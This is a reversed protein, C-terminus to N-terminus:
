PEGDGPPGAPGVVDFPTSVGEGGLPRGEDDPDGLLVRENAELGSEVVVHNDNSPGLLVERPDYRGGRVAYVYHKGGREFVAELPVYLADDIRDVMLEVRASMGPRLRPDAADVLITVTFYKGGRRAETELALTGIYDVRGELELEPYADVSISVKQDKEVKYIDTERIQSEVTMRSLDPLMILPQNPWVQDGVQVKRKESGFFVEKYIVLGAVTAQIECQALNETQTEVRSVLEAYKSQALKLTADAQSIRYSSARESQRLGERSNAVAARSGEIEAPRTYDIYTRHKIELLALDEKAKEVAQKARDLELKTIFGEDLLPKLDDYSSEAKSLERRAQSLQAASEAEALKGKGEVVSELEIEALRVKDRSETLEESAAIHLLKQEEQAKVLEAEAQALQARSRELEEAFPEPDFRVLVDGVEVHTGEPVIELIKAQSGPITSSYTISRLAQLTGVEVIKVEFPGRVVPAVLAGGVSPSLLANGALVVAFLALGGPLLARKPNARVARAVEVLRERARAPERVLVAVSRADRLAARAGELLSAARSPTESL